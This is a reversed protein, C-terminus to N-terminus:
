REGSLRCISTFRHFFSLPPSSVRVGRGSSDSFAPQHPDDEEPRRLEGDRAKLGQEGGAMFDHGHHGLGISRMGAVVGLRNRWRDLHGGGRGANRHQLGVTGAAVVEIVLETGEVGVEADHHGVTVQEAGFQEGNRAETEHVHVGRQQRPPTAGGRDM